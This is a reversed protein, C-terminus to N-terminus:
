QEVSPLPYCTTEGYPQGTPDLGSLFPIDHRLMDNLRHGGEHFLERSREQLVHDLVENGTPGPTEDTSPDYPPLGARAHLDNIIGVARDPDNTRAAAEAIILQAEEWTALPIDTSRAPYKTATWLPTVGDFGFRGADEVEVRPDNEGNWQLDRFAPAVSHHGVNVFDEFGKNWRRDLSPSPGDRVAMKAYSEPVDDADDIAGQLDGLDLRVRARGVRAMNLIDTDGAQQALDLARTFREEAIQLSTEPAVASGGDFAVQCFGEGFLTYAYGAYASVTAMKGTRDEVDADPFGDLREFVDEAQFRATHLPTWLGFGNGACSGSVYNSFDASVQRTSWSRQVFNGSSPIFEDSHASSGFTYNNFACEFDAVVGTVLTNARSPDDLADEPVQGPLEVELLSDCGLLVGAGLVLLVPLIRAIQNQRRM